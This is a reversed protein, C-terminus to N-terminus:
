QKQESVTNYMVSELFDIIKSQNRGRFFKIYEAIKATKSASIEV